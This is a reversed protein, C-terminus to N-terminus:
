SATPSWAAHAALSAAHAALSAAGGMPAARPRGVLSSATAPWDVRPGIWARALGRAPWDVRPGPSSHGRPDASSEGCVIDIDLDNVVLPVIANVHGEGGREAEALDAWRAGDDLSRDAM